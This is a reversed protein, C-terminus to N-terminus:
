LQNLFMFKASDYKGSEILERLRVTSEYPAKVIFMNVLWDPINGGPDFRVQYNISIAGGALPTIEYGGVFVPLRVLGEKAPIYDAVAVSSTYVKKTQADQWIKFHIAIDRDSFPYPLDNVQYQYQETESIKNLVSSYTCSYIWESYRDADTIAAVVANMPANVTVQTRLEDIAYGEVHRTYIRIGNQDRSLKWNEDQGIVTQSTFLAVALLLMNGPKMKMEQYHPHDFSCFYLAIGKWDPM